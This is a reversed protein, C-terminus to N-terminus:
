HSMRLCQLLCEVVADQDERKMQPFIPLIITSEAARETEPLSIEGCMQRYAPERHAAQVGPRAAIGQKRMRHLVRDRSLPCGPRLRIMYSQFNARGYDPEVPTDIFPHGEFAANYRSALHRRLELIFDLKKVQEVGVAGQLNTMRFNYGVVPYAEVTVESARHRDLDSISEGHSILSRAKAELDAGPLLMMGGEGTTIVKRPHFSLCAITDGGGVRRGKYVSGIACAADEIVTIGRRESIERIPDIDAPLGVQHVPMIARTRASIKEEILGPDINYTLPDIDVFVPIAGAHVIANATAVFTYSPVIIEDGEEVGALKLALFLATTCSSTAVAHRAGLYDAVAREFAAVRGGQTLWGSRLVEVVSREEDETVFPRTIPIKAM